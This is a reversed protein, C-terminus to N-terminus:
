APSSSGPARSCSSRATASRRGAHRGAGRPPPGPRAAGPGAPPPVFSARVLGHRVLDAIWEADKVDTKRGPVNRMHSANGVILTFAGELAAHVPQWYVGTGEMGVHTVGLELLWARLAALDQRMTGFTRAEKRVRRAPPVSSSAPSWRARTCTSGPPANSSRKWPWRWLHRARRRPVPSLPQGVHQGPPAPRSMRHDRFAARVSRKQPTPQWGALDPRRADAPRVIPRFRGDDCGWKWGSATRPVRQTERRPIGPHQAHPRSSRPPLRDSTPLGVASRGRGTDGALGAVGRGQDVVGLAVGRHAPLAPRLADAAGPAAAGRHDAVPAAVRPPVALAVAALRARGARSSRVPVARAPWRRGGRTRTGHGQRVPRFRGSRCIARPSPRPPASTRATASCSRRPGAAPSGGARGSPPTSVSSTWTAAPCPPSGAATASPPTGAPAPPEPASGAAARGGLVPRGDRARRLAPPTTTRVGASTRCLVTRGAIPPLTAFPARTWAPSHPTWARGSPHPQPRLATRRARPPYARSSSPSPERSACTSVGSPKRDGSRERGLGRRPMERSFGGGAGLPWELM